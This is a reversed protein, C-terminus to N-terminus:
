SPNFTSIKYPQTLLIFLFQRVCTIKANRKSEFHENVGLLNYPIKVQKRLNALLICFM